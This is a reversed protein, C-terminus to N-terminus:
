ECCVGEIVYGFLSEEDRRATVGFTRELLGERLAQEKSVCCLGGQVDTLCIHTACALAQAIDHAAMVITKGSAHMQKLIRLMSVQHDIDLFTVPEDLLVVQADQAITMALYVRQREGGSLADPEKYMFGEIGAMWIARDVMEHDEQRLIKSFSLHPFRGHRVMTLVDTQPIPRTQPFYSLMRARVEPAITSVPQGCLLVDGENPAILGATAKLLTSKGSGNKGLVCTFSADEILGSVRRLVANKGYTLTM